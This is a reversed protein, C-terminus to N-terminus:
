SRPAMTGARLIVDPLVRAAADGECKAKIDSFTISYDDGLRSIAAKVDKSFLSGQNVFIQADGTPERLTVVFSVMACKCPIPEDFAPDLWKAIKINEKDLAAKPDPVRKTLFPQEALTAGQYQIRLVSTQGATAAKWYWRGNKFQCRGNDSVLNLTELPLTTQIAIPTELGIYVVSSEPLVFQATTQAQSHIGLLLLLAALITRM